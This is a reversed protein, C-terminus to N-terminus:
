VSYDKKYRVFIDVRNFSVSRQIADKRNKINQEQQESDTLKKLSVPHVRQPSPSGRQPLPIMRQPLPSEWKPSPSIRQQSPSARQQSPSVGRIPSPSSARGVGYRYSAPSSNRKYNRVIYGDRRNVQDSRELFADRQGNKAAYQSSEQRERASTQPQVTKSHCEEARLNTTDKRLDQTSSVLDPPVDKWIRNARDEENVASM